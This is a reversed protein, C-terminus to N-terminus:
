RGDDEEKDSWLQAIIAGKDVLAASAGPKLGAQEELRNIVRQLTILTKGWHAHNTEVYAPVEYEDEGAALSTDIVVILGDRKGSRIEAYVVDMDPEVKSKDLSVEHTHDGHEIFHKTKKV